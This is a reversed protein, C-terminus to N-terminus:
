IGAKKASPQGAQLTQESIKGAELACVMEMIARANEMKNNQAAWDAATRGKRDTWLPKDDSLPRFVIRCEEATAYAAAIMLADMGFSDLCFPDAGSQMAERCGAADQELIALHLKKTEESLGRGNARRALESPPLEFEEGM